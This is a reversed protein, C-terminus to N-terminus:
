DSPEDSDEPSKIWKGYGDLRYEEMVNDCRPCKRLFNYFRQAVMEQDRPPGSAHLTVTIDCKKCEYKISTVM